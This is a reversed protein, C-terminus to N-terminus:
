DELKKDGSVPAFWIIIMGVAYILSTVSGVKGYDGGYHSILVGAGLVGLGSAVRGFNFTIGAGTSRVRTPFLEPLCLPLWGFYFGGVVGLMFAWFSFWNVTDLTVAPGLGILGRAYDLAGYEGPVAPRLGQFGLGGFIYASTLLAFLSILFYSRRRGFLGALYGGLLSSIAGGASRSVQTWAKLAPDVTGGVKDAWPVLWNGSGWGGLLPITGLCIGILTITLLPPRFVEAVPSGSSARTERGALWRPSEPVALLVFVGLVCPSAVLLMLWRWSDPTIKVYCTLLGILVLGVNAATGILGALTPRSVDSWAESVIAIGNPWMGGVGLCSVFRLLLLQEVNTVFYSLGSMLTFCLISMAMARARGLKDGVWGFLLGGAAAGFLFGANLRAFWQGVWVEINKQAAVPDTASDREAAMAAPIMDLAASRSTLPTVAMLTGAFMWGLFATTLVLYRGTATLAPPAVPSSGSRSVTQSM